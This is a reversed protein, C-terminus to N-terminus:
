DEIQLARERLERRLIKGVLSKPLTDALHVKSPIRYGSSRTKVFEIVERESLEAGPAM